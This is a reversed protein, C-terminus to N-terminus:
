NLYYVPGSFSNTTLVAMPPSSPAWKLVFWLDWAIFRIYPCTEAYWSHCTPTPVITPQARSPALWTRSFPGHSNPLQPPAMARGGNTSLHHSGGANLHPGVPPSAHIQMRRKVHSSHQKVRNTPPAGVERRYHEGRKFSDVKNHPGDWDMGIVSSRLKFQPHAM